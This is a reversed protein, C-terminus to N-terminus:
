FEFKSMFGWYLYRGGNNDDPGMFFQGVEPTLTLVEAITAEIQFYWAYRDHWIINFYEFEHEVTQFGFGGEFALFDLPKYRLIGACQKFGKSNLMKWYSVSTTDNISDTM